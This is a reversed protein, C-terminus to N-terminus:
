GVQREKPLYNIVDHITEAYQQASMKTTCFEHDKSYAYHSYVKTITRRQKNDQLVITYTKERSVNSIRHLDDSSVHYAMGKKIVESKAIKLGRMELKDLSYGSLHESSGYVYELYQDGDDAISWMEQFLAGQCVYSAFNWRHGHINGRATRGDGPWLHLRLRLCGSISDGLHVKEFGNAHRYSRGLDVSCYRRDVMESLLNWLAGSECLRKLSIRIYEQRADCSSPAEAEIQSLVNELDLM